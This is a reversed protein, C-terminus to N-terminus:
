PRLPEDRTGQLTSDPADPKKEGVFLIGNHWHCALRRERVLAHAGDLDTGMAKAYDVIYTPDVLYRSAAERAEVIRSGEKIDPSRRSGRGSCAVVWFVAASSVGVGALLGFLGLVGSGDGGLM